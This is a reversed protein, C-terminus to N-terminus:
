FGTLKVHVSQCVKVKAPVRGALQPPMHESQRRLRFCGALRSPSEGFLTWSQWMTAPPRPRPRTNFDLNNGVLKQDHTVFFRDRAICTPLSNPCPNSMSTSSFAYTESDLWNAKAQWTYVQDKITVNNLPTWEFGGRVWLEQAGTANDAVNYNTTLTRSDITVPGIVSGDFTNIATGSVVGNVANGGAFSTPVVPTHGL